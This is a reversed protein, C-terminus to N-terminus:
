YVNSRTDVSTLYLVFPLCLTAFWNDFKSWSLYEYKTNLLTNFLFTNFLIVDSLWFRYSLMPDNTDYIM